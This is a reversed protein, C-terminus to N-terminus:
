RKSRRRKRGHTKRKSTSKRRSKRKNSGMISKWGAVHFAADLVYNTLSGGTGTKEIEVILQGTLVAIYLAPDPRWELMVAASTNTTTDIGYDVQFPIEEKALAAFPAESGEYYRGENLVFDTGTLTQGPLGFGTGFSTTGFGQIPGVNSNYVAFIRDNASAGTDDLTLQNTGDFTAANLYQAGNVFASTDSIAPRFDYQKNTHYDIGQTKMANKVAKFANKIALCRGATPAYYSIKGTVPIPELTLAGAITRLNMDIGVLKYYAGARCMHQLQATLQGPLDVHFQDGINLGIPTNGVGFEYNVTHIQGLSKAM